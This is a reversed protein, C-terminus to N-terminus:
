KPLYNLFVDDFGRSMLLAKRGDGPWVSNYVGQGVGVWGVGGRIVLTQLSGQLIGLFGSILAVLISLASFHYDNRYLPKRNRVIESFVLYRCIYKLM